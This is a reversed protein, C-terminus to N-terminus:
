PRNRGPVPVNEVDTELEVVLPHLLRRAFRLVLRGQAGRPGHELAQPLRRVSTSPVPLGARRVLDVRAVDIEVPEPRLDGGSPCCRDSCRTLRDEQGPRQPTTGPRRPGATIAQGPGA